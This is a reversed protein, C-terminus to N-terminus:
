QCQADLGRVTRRLWPGVARMGPAAAFRSIWQQRKELAHISNRERRAERELGPPFAFRIESGPVPGPDFRLFAERLATLAYEKNPQTLKFIRRGEPTLSPPNPNGTLVPTFNIEWAQPRGDRVGYDLRGYGIHAMEFVRRVWAEHPNDHLYAAEELILNEDVRRTGSKTM